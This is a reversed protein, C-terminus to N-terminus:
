FGRSRWCGRGKRQGGRLITYRRVVVLIDLKSEIEVCRHSLDSLQCGGVLVIDTLKNTTPQYLFCHSSTLLSFGLGLHGLSTKNQHEQAIRKMTTTNYDSFQNPRVQAEPQACGFFAAGRFATNGQNPIGHGSRCCYRYM